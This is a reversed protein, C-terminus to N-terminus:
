FLKVFKKTMEYHWLVGVTIGTLLVESDSLFTHLNDSAYSDSIFNILIESIVLTVTFALRYHKLHPSLEDSLYRHNRLLLLCSFSNVLWLFIILASLHFPATLYYLASATM